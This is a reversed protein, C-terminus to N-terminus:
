SKGISNRSSSCMSQWRSAAQEVTLGYRALQQAHLREAERWLVFEGALEQRMVEIVEAAFVEESPPRTASHFVARHIDASGGHDYHATCSLDLTRNLELGLLTWFSDMHETTGVVAIESRLNNLADSMTNETSVFPGDSSDYKFRSLVPEYEAQLDSNLFLGDAQHIHVHSQVMRM